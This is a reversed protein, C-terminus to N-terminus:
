GLQTKLNHISSVRKWLAVAAEVQMHKQGLVKTDVREVNQLVRCARQDCQGAHKCTRLM